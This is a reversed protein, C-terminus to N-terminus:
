RKLRIGILPTTRRFLSDAGLWVSFDDNLHVLARADLQLRNPSYADLVLQTSPSTQWDLGAGLKSAYVGYRFWSSGGLRTEYQGIFKNSEAADFLGLSVANRQGVPFRVRVDSRVHPAMSRLSFDIALRPAGIGFRPGGSPINLRDVLRAVDSAIKEGRESTQRLSAVTGKIDSQVGADGTIQHIDSAIQNFRAITTKALDLTDQLSQQLRPDNVQEALRTVLGRAADVTDTFRQLLDFMAALLEDLRGGNRKVISQLQASMGHATRRAEASIARLDGLTAHLTTRITPDTALGRAAGSAAEFNAMMRDTRSLIGEIQDTTVELNRRMTGLTLTLEHVAKDAEPSLQALPGTSTGTVTSGPALAVRSPSSTPDIDIQPTSILLGSTLRFRANSPIPRSNRIAITVVPRLDSPRLTIRRVEGVPVGNMRVPSQRVLGRTDPFVVHIDYTNLSFRSFFWWGGFLLGLAALATVGVKAATRTDM